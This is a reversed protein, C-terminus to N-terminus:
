FLGIELSVMLVGPLVRVQSGRSLLRGSMGTNVPSRAGIRGLHSWFGIM